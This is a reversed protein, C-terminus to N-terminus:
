ISYMEVGGVMGDYWGDYWGDNPHSGFNLSLHDLIWFAMTQSHAGWCFLCVTVARDLDPPIMHSLMQFQGGLLGLESVHDELSPRFFVEM